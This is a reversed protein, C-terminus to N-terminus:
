AATGSNQFAEQFDPDELLADNEPDREDDEDSLNGAAVTTVGLPATLGAEVLMMACEAPSMQRRQAERALLDYISDRMELEVVTLVDEEPESEETETEPAETEPVETEDVEVPKRAPKKSTAKKKRAPAKKKRAPATKTKKAAM